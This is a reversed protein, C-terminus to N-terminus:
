RVYPNGQGTWYGNDKVGDHNKDDIDKLTMAQGHGDAFVFNAGGNNREAPFSRWIYTFPDGNPENVGGEYYPEPGKGNGKSGLEVSGLPPDIVYVAAAREGPLNSSSGDRSGATDGITVTDVPVKIDAENRAQFGNRANGLYQFNYGYGGYTAKRSFEGSHAFVKAFDNLERQDLNPSLFVDTNNVYYILYDPWRTRPKGIATTESKKSSHVPYTENHDGCYAALGMGIQRVNNLSLSSLAAVRAKALAPLILALLLTIISIVVLLEILTFGGPREERDASRFLRYHKM